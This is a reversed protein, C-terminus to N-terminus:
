GTFGKVRDADAETQPVGSFNILMYLEAEAALLEAETLEYREVHGDPGREGFAVSGNFQLVSFATSMEFRNHAPKTLQSYVVDQDKTLTEDIDGDRFWWAPVPVEDNAFARVAEIRQKGDVVRYPPRDTVHEPLISVTVSGTPIGMYLSKILGQRQELTWVSSRQYPAHLDYLEDNDDRTLFQAIPYNTPTLRLKPLPPMGCITAAM